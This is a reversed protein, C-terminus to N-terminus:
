KDTLDDAEAKEVEKAKDLCYEGCCGDFYFADSDSIPQNCVKCNQM